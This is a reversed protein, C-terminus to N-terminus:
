SAYLGVQVLGSGRGAQLFRWSGMDVVMAVAVAMAVTVTVIVKVWWTKKIPLLLVQERLLQEM